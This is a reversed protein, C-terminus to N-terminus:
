PTCARRGFLMVGLWFRKRAFNAVDPEAFGSDRETM